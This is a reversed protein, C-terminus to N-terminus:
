RHRVGPDEGRVHPHKQPVDVGVTLINTKGVCTPTNRRQSAFCQTFGLRGWARPPTEPMMAMSAHSQLDEGRVHPHKKKNADYFATQHTKGVCTPTNGGDFINLEFDSPRGWARPPTESLRTSPSSDSTDEGRVHPHKQSRRTLLPQCLTKGVCTPTNRSFFSGKNCAQPRGWARPPTEIM